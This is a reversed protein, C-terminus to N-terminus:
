EKLIRSTNLLKYYCQSSYEMNESPFIAVSKLPLKCIIQLLSFDTQSRLSYGVSNRKCILQTMIDNSLGNKFKFLEAALITINKRHITEITPLLWVSLFAKM